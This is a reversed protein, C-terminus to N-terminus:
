SKPRKAPAYLNNNPSSGDTVSARGGAHRPLTSHACLDGAAGDRGPRRYYMPRLSPPTPPGHRTPRPIATVRSQRATQLRGPPASKADRLGRRSRGSVTLALKAKNQRACLQRAAKPRRRCPHPDGPGLGTIIIIGPEVARVGSKPSSTASRKSCYRARPPSQPPAAAPPNYLYAMGKVLWFMAFSVILFQIVTEMFVGINM